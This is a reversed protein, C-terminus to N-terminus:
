APSTTPTPPRRHGAHRRHLRRASKGAPRNAADLPQLGATPRQRHAREARGAVRDDAGRRRRGHGPRRWALGIWSPAPTSKWACTAPPCFSFRRTPARGNRNGAPEGVVMIAAGPETWGTLYYFDEDQRYPTLDLLPEEAAFLIAIGGHLKAALAARRPTTSAPPSSKSRACRPLVATSAALLLLALIRFSKMRNNDDKASGPAFLFASLPEETSGGLGARNANM